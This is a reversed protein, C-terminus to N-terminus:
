ARKSNKMKINKIDLSCEIEVSYRPFVIELLSPACSWHYLPYDSNNEM